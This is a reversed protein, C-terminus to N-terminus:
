NNQNNAERRKQRILEEFDLLANEGWVFFCGNGIGYFSGCRSRFVPEEISSNVVDFVGLNIEFDDFWGGLCFRLCGDGLCLDCFWDSVRAGNIIDGNGSLM